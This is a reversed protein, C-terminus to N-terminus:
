AARLRALVVALSRRFGPPTGWVRRAVREAITAHAHHHTLDVPGDNHYRMSGGLKTRM